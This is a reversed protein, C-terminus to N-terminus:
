ACRLSQLAQVLELDTHVQPPPPSRAVSMNNGPVLARLLRQDDLDLLGGGRDTQGACNATACRLYSCVRNAQVKM